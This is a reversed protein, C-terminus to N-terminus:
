EYLIKEVPIGLAKAYKSATEIHPKSGNELGQIFTTVSSVNVKLEEALDKQKWNKEALAKKIEIARQNVKKDSMSSNVAM